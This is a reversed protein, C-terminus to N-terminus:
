PRVVMKMGSYVNKTEWGESIEVFVASLLRLLPTENLSLTAVRMRRKLEQIPTSACVTFFLLIAFSGIALASSSMPVEELV